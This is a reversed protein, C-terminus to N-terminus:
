GLETKCDKLRALCFLEVTVWRSVTDRITQDQRCWFPHSATIPNAASYTTLLYIHLWQDDKDSFDMDIISNIDKITSELAQRLLVDFWRLERCDLSYGCSVLEPFM